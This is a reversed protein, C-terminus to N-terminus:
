ESDGRPKEGSALEFVLGTSIEPRLTRTPVRQEGQASPFSLAYDAPLWQAELSLFLGVRSALPAEVRVGLVGGWLLTTSPSPAAILDGRVSTRHRWVDLIAGAELTLTGPGLGREVGLRAEIPVRSVRADAEPGRITTTAAYGASLSARFARPMRFIADAAAGSQWEFDEAISHGIYGLAVEVKWPEPPIPDVPPADADMADTGSTSLDAVPSASSRSTEAPLLVLLPKGWGLKGSLVAPIAERLVVSLQERQAAADGRLAVNRAFVGGSAARLAYVRIAGPASEVFWFVAKAQEAAAITAARQAQDDLSEVRPLEVASIDLDLEGVQEHMRDFTTLVGAAPSEDHLVLVVREPDRAREVAAAPSTVTGAFWTLVVAAYRRASATFGVLRRPSRRMPDVM